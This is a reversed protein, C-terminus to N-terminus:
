IAASVRLENSTPICFAYCKSLCNLSKQVVLHVRAVRGLLSPEHGSVFRYKAFVLIAKLLHPLLSFCGSLLINNV